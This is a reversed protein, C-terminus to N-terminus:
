RSVPATGGCGRSLLGAQWGMVMVMVMVMVMAMAMAMAMVPASAATTSKLGDVAL